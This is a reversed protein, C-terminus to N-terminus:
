AAITRRGKAGEGTVSMRKMRSPVRRLLLQLLDGRMEAAVAAFGILPSVAEKRAQALILICHM